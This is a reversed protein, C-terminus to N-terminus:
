RLLLRNVIGTVVQRFYLFPLWLLSKKKNRALLEESPPCFLEKFLQLKGVSPLVCFDHVILALNSNTLPQNSTDRAASLSLRHCLQASSRNAFCSYSKKIATLCVEQVKKDVALRVFDVLDSEKMSGVLLHMDYFWILRDSDHDPNGALHMCSLLLSDMPCLTRAGPIDNGPLLVARDLAEQYDLVRSFRAVNSIRWHIDFTMGMVTGTEKTCSFQHSKYMPGEVAYGLRHMLKQMKDIDSFAIFLDTDCRERTAPFTYHTYALATGKLLLPTIGQGLCNGLIKRLEHVRHMELAVQYMVIKHLTDLLEVPLYKQQGSEKLAYYFLGSVGHHLCAPLIDQQDCCQEAHWDVSRGLLVACILEESNDM